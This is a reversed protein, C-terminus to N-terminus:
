HHLEDEVEEMAAEAFAVVLGSWGGFETGWMWIKLHPPREKVAIWTAGKADPAKLEEVTLLCRGFAVDVEMVEGEGLVGGLIAKENADESQVVVVAAGAKGPGVVAGEGDAGGVM